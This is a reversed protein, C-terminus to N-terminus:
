EKEILMEIRRLIENLDLDNLSGLKSYGRSKIDMSKMQECMVFGDIFSYGTLKYHFPNNRNTHTIPCLYVVNFRNNMLKNSVVVAPRFGAQEHGKQPNFTIKLVDGQKVNVM